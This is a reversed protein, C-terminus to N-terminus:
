QEAIFQIETTTGIIVSKAFDTVYTTIDFIVNTLGFIYLYDSIENNTWQIKQNVLHGFM